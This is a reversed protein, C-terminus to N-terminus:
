KMKLKKGTVWWADSIGDGRVRATVRQAEEMTYAKEHILHYWTGRANQVILLKEGRQYRPLARQANQLNGRAAVVVYYDEDNLKSDLSPTTNYKGEKIDKVDVKLQDLEYRLGDILQRLEGIQITISDTPETEKLLKELRSNLEDIKSNNGKVITTDQGFLLTSLLLFIFLSISHKM